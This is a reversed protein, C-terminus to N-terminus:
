KHSKLSKKTNKKEFSKISKILFHIRKADFFNPHADKKQNIANKFKKLNIYTPKLRFDNTINNPKFLFKNNKKLFFQDQLNNIRTKLLYKDKETILKIEHLTKTKSKNDITKFNLLVNINKKKLFFKSRLHFNNKSQKIKSDIISFNGFFNELYYLTHCIYNFFYGGGLSHNNKWISRNKKPIKMFWNIKINKIHIKNLIKKQLFNFAEINAFEYNTFHTIKKNKLLECIKSIDKYSTTVPKDCFIHKNKKIAYEIIEKHLGPPTAIVVAKIKKDLILNKWNSYIKINKPMKHNLKKIKQSFGVVNFSKNKEISKYIVKYGFNRGIIGINLKKIM